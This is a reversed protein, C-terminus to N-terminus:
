WLPDSEAKGWGEAKKLNGGMLAPVREMGVSSKVCRYWKKQQEFLYNNGFYWDPMSMTTQNTRALNLTVAFNVM